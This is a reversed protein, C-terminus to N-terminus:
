KHKDSLEHEGAAKMVNQIAGQERVSKLCLGIKM